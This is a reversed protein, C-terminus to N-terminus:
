GRSGKRCGPMVIRSSPLTVAYVYSSPQHWWSGESVSVRPKVSPAQAPIFEQRQSDNADLNPQPQSADGDSAQLM